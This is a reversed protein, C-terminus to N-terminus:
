PTFDLLFIAAGTSSYEAQHDRRGLNELANLYRGTLNEHENFHYVHDLIVWTRGHGHLFEVSKGVAAADPDGDQIWEWKLDPMGFQPAYYLIPAGGYVYACVRDGPRLHAQLYAMVPKIEERPPWRVQPQSPLMVWRMQVWLPMWLLGIALGVGAWIGVRCGLHTVVDMGSGMLMLFLPVAFMVLRGDFPYRRVLSAGLALALPGVLLVFRTWNKPASLVGAVLIIVGLWAPQLAVPDDLVRHLAHPYWRFAAWSTPLPAFADKWFGLLYKQQETSTRMSVFWVLGFNAAWLVLIMLTGLRIRDRRVEHILLLVGITALVYISTFSCWMALVGAIALILAQQRMPNSRLNCVCLLLLLTVTADCGYPKVEAAYYVLSPSIAFLALGVLTGGVGLLRRAVAYFVPLAVLSAALPVLRLVWDRNGLFLILVRQVWLFGIPAVQMYDLTGTLEKFSHKSINLALLAEDTWMSRFSFYSILRLGAGLAIIIWAARLAARPWRLDPGGPLGPNMRVDLDVPLIERGVATPKIARSPILM